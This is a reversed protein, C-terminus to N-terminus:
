AQRAPEDAPATYGLHEELEDEFIAIIHQPNEICYGCSTECRLGMADIVESSDRVGEMICGRARRAAETETLANCLCVYM